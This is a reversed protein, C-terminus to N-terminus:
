EALNFAYDEPFISFGREVLSAANKRAHHGCFNLRFGSKTAEYSARIGCSDCVGTIERQATKQPKVTGLVRDLAQSTM